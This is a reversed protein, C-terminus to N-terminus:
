TELHRRLSVGEGDTGQLGVQSISMLRQSQELSHIFQKINEYEGSVNFSLEYRLLGNESLSEPQYNIQAINLRARNSLVLLEEVLGTFESYEPINERFRSLDQNALIFAQEPTRAGGGQNHLLQRVEAQRLLFDKEQEVIRPVVQQELVIIMVLNALLLFGLLLILRRHFVWIQSIIELLRM